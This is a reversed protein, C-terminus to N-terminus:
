PPAAERFSRRGRAAAWLVDLLLAATFGEALVLFVLQNQSYRTVDLSHTMALTLNIGFSYAHLWLILLIAPRLSAKWWFGALLLALWGLGLPLYARAFITNLNLYARSRGLVPLDARRRLAECQRLYARTPPYRDLKRWAGRRSPFSAKETPKRM